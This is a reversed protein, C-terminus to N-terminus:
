LRDLHITTFHQYQQFTCWLHYSKSREPYLAAYFRRSERVNRSFLFYGAAIIRTILAFFRSGFIRSTAVLLKYWFGNM